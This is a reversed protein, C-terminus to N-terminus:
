LRDIKLKDGDQLRSQGRIVLLTDGPLNASAPRGEQANPLAVFRATTGDAVFVGLQGDRQVILPVPLLGSAERWVVEGSTGIAAPSGAFGFRGKQTRAAADIVTALRTFGLPWSQGQSELRLEQAAPLGAAYRPDIDADVERASTQVLTVLPTGPQALSGVQAARAVVTAEYPATIRTRSLALQASRIGLEQAARNARLVALTTRRDLLDDDSIFSSSILDEGRKLRAAAQEIQADLAQLDARARDLGLQADDDNLRVLVDGKKVAAGVDKEVVEILGTVQATIVAKNAPVVTAPARIE